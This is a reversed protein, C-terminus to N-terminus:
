NKEMRKDYNTKDGTHEIQVWESRKNKHFMIDFFAVGFDYFFIFYTISCIIAKLGRIKINKRETILIYTSAIVFPLFIYLFELVTLGICKGVIGGNREYIAAFITLILSLIFLLTNIVNYFVFPVIGLNFEGRMFRIMKKHHHLYYTGNKKLFRRSSFYGSLWRVHQKHVDKMKTSQEDYFMAEPFYRMNVDHYYCYTSLQIDETMGTFIWGGAGKIIDSDVFYGTGMVACKHFYNSRGRNTVQNMWSFMISSNATLWNETPNTFNRYGSCVKVGTQRIDNMREIFNNACTNDADFIMYADYVINNRNFYDIMEQLAFGKTRRDTTLRDRVFYNYGCELAIKNTPDDECETIVWVDFSDKPYTQNKLSDLIGRIVASENRAAILIGFKTLKDSHPVEPIRKRAAFFYVLYYLSLIVTFVAMVSALSVLINIALDFDFM